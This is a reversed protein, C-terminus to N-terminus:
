KVHSGLCPPRSSQWAAMAMVFIPIPQPCLLCLIRKSSTLAGESKELTVGGFVPIGRVGGTIGPIGGSDSPFFGIDDASVASTIRITISITVVVSM